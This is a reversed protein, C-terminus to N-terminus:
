GFGDLGIFLGVVQGLILGRDAQADTVAALLVPRPQGTVAGRRGADQGGPVGEALLQGTGLVVGQLGPQLGGDQM